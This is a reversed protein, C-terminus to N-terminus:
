TGVQTSLNIAGLVSKLELTARATRTATDIELVLSTVASIGLVGLAATQLMARRRVDSTKKAAFEGLYDVGADLDNFWEGKFLRFAM